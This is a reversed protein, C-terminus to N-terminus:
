INHLAKYGSEILSRKGKVDGTGTWYFVGALNRERVFDAKMRVTTPSDYTVFGGDGGVCYASGTETDISEVTGPRPLDKYEFTGEEGGHGNYSQGPKSAGLFSRGYVPIGLLLKSSPIGKQLCYTISSSCSLSSADSFPKKPPFLQSHSSCKDTWPGSFDYTM